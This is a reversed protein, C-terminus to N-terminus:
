GASKALSGGAYKARMFRRYTFTFWAGCIGALVVVGYWRLAPDYAWRGVWAARWGLVIGLGLLAVLADSWEPFVMVDEDWAHVVAEIAEQSAGVFASLWVMPNWPEDAVESGYAVLWALPLFLLAGFVELLSSALLFLGLLALAWAYESPM